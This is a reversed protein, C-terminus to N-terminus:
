QNDHIITSQVVNKMQGSMSPPFIGRTVIVSTPNAPTRLGSMPPTDDMIAWHLPISDTFDLRPPPVQVVPLPFTGLLPPNFHPTFDGAELTRL